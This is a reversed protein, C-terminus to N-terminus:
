PITLVQGVKLSHADDLLDRNADFIQMWRNGTGYVASSITSLSDGSKVTYSTTTSKKQAVVDRPEAPARRVPELNLEYAPVLIQDDVILTELTENANQLLIDHKADGYFRKSLVTWDDGVVCTYIMFDPSVTTRLGESSVLALGRGDGSDVLSNLLPDAMAPPTLPTASKPTAKAGEKSAAESAQVDRDFQVSNRLSRASMSPDIPALESTSAASADEELQKREALITRLPDMGEGELSSLDTRDIASVKSPRLSISLVIVCVLLILLVVIKEFNGM